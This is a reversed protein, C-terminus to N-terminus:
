EFTMTMFICSTSCSPVKEIKKVSPSWFVAATKNTEGIGYGLTKYKPGSFHKFSNLIVHNVQKSFALKTWKIERRFKYDRTLLCTQVLSAKEFLKFTFWVQM